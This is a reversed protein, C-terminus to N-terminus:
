KLKCVLLHPALLGQTVMDVLRALCLPLCLQSILFEGHMYLYGRESDVAASTATPM